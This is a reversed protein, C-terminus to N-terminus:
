SSNREVTVLNPSVTSLQIFSIHFPESQAGSTAKVELFYTPWKARWSSAQAPGFLIATLIGHTDRFTFDAVSTGTFPPFDM